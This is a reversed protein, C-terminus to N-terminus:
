LAKTEVEIELMSIFDDIEMFGRDGDKRHRVAVGRTEVEKDGIILLYPIKQMQGERIKYGVKESRYDAETRFGAQKLRATIERAYDHQRDTIPIVKVQVPALWAPFAGATHETLIGIFREISGYIVRHIMVPRHKEGDEGIYTLDFKEPMQFDLQITG